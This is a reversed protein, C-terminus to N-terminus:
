VIYVGTTLILVVSVYLGCFIVNFVCVLYSITKNQMDVSM